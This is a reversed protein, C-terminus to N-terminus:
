KKYNKYTIFGATGILMIFFFAGAYKLIPTVNYGTQADELVKKLYKETEQTKKWNELVNAKPIGALLTECNQSGLRANCLERFWINNKGDNAILADMDKYARCWTSHKKTNLKECDANLESLIQDVADM